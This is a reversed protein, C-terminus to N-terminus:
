FIILVYIILINKIYILYTLPQHLNAVATCKHMFVDIVRLLFFEISFFNDL